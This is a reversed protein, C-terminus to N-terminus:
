ILPHWSWWGDTDLKWGSPIGGGLRRAISRGHNEGHRERQREENTKKDNNTQKPPLTEESPLSLRAIYLCFFPPTLGGLFAPIDFSLLLRFSQLLNPSSSRSPPFGIGAMRKSLSSPFSKKDPRVMRRGRREIIRTSTQGDM